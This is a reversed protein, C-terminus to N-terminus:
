HKFYEFAHKSGTSCRHHLKKTFYSNECFPQMMSPTKLCESITIKVLLVSLSVYNM